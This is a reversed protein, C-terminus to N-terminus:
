IYKHCLRNKKSQEKLDFEFIDIIEEVRFRITEKIIFPKALKVVKFFEYRRPTFLFVVMDLIYVYPQKGDIKLKNLYYTALGPVLSYFVLPNDLVSIKRILHIGPIKVLYHFFLATFIFYFIKKVTLAMPIQHGEINTITLETRWFERYTKITIRDDMM